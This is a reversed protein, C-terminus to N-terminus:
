KQLQEPVEQLQKCIKMEPNLIKVSTQTASQITISALKQWCRLNANAECSCM